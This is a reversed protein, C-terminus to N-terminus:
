GPGSDLLATVAEPEPPLYIFGAKEAYMKDVHSDGVHIAKECPIPGARGAIPVEPIHLEGQNRQTEM